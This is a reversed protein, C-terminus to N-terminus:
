AYGSTVQKDTSIMKTNENDPKSDNVILISM